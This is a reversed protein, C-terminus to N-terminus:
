LYATKCVSNVVDPLFHVKLLKTKAHRGAIDFGSVHRIISMLIYESYILQMVQQSPAAVWPSCRGFTLRDALQDATPLESYDCLQISSRLLIM